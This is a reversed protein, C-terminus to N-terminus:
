LGLGVATGGWVGYYDTNRELPSMYRNQLKTQAGNMLGSIDVGDLMARQLIRFMMTGDGAELAESM